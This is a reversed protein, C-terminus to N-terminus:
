LLHMTHVCSYRTPLRNNTGASSNVHRGELLNMESSLTCPPMGVPPNALTLKHAPHQLRQRCRHRPPISLHVALTHQDDRTLLAHSVSSTECHWHQNQSIIHVSTQSPPEHPSSIRAPCYHHRFLHMPKHPHATETTGWGTTLRKGVRGM